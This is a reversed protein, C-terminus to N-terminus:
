GHPPKEPPAKAPAFSFHRHGFYSTLVPSAIGVAHAVAEANWSFGVAPFVYRVLLITVLWVQTLAVINVLTFRAFETGRSRESPAFVFARNLGYAVGMAIVYAVVIAASLPLALSLAIRSLWNVLAATTGVVLFRLFQHSVKM